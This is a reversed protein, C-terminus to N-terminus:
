SASASRKGTGPEAASAHLEARFQVTILKLMALREAPDDTAAVIETYKRGALRGLDIPALSVREDRYLRSIADTVRGLLEEDIIALTHDPPTTRPENGMLVWDLSKGAAQALASVGAFSAKARGDRWKSLQEATIGVITSAQTPGGLATIMEKLRTGVEPSWGPAKDVSTPIPEPSEYDKPMDIFIRVDVFKQGGM